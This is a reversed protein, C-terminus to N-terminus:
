NKEGLIRDVRTRLLAESMPGGIVIEDIRGESDIFFTTPMSHIQYSSSVAGSYDLLVPFTLGEEVVFAEVDAIQDQQTNNVALIVIDDPGYDLYVQQMAPMESRCPPCWTAWFNLIIAKGRLETLSIVKGDITVLEFNPARFGEQPASITETNAEELPVVSLWIWLGGLTLIIIMLFTWYQNLKHM